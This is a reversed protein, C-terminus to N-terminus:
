ENVEVFGSLTDGSVQAVETGYYSWTDVVDCQEEVDGDTVTITEAM